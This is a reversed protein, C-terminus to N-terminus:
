ILWGSLNALRQPDIKLGTEKLDEAIEPLQDPTYMGEKAAAPLATLASGLLLATAFTKAHM